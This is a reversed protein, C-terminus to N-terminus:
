RACISSWCRRTARACTMFLSAGRRTSRSATRIIRARSITASRRDARQGSRDRGDPEEDARRRPHLAVGLRLPHQRSRRRARDDLAQRGDERRDRRRGRRIRGLRVGQGVDPAYAIGDPFRIDGVRSTVKLTRDDIIAVEHAGAASVYVQHHSPVAWCAPRARCTWSRRSWGAATRM